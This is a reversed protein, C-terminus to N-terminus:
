LLPLKTFTNIFESSIENNLKHEGLISYVKNVIDIYTDNYLQSSKNSITFLGDAKLIKQIYFIINILILEIYKKLNINNELITEGITILINIIMESTEISKNSLINDLSNNILNFDSIFDIFLKLFSLHKENFNFDFKINNLEINSDIEKQCDTYIINIKSPKRNPMNSLIISFLNEYSMNDIDYIEYVDKTKCIYQHNNYTIYDITNKDIVFRNIQYSNITNNISSFGLINIVFDTTNWLNILFYFDMNYKDVFEYNIISLIYKKEPIVFEKIKQINNNHTNYILLKNKTLFVLINGNNSISMKVINEQLNLRKMKIQELLSLKFYEGKTKLLCFKGNDSFSIDVCSQPLMCSEVKNTEFQCIFLHYNTEYKSISIFKDDLLINKYIEYNEKTIYNMDIKKISSCEGNLLKSTEYIHLYKEDPISIYNNNNSIQILKINKSETNFINVLKDNVYIFGNNKNNYIIKIESIKM